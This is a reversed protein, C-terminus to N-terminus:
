GSTGVTVRRWFRSLIPSPQPRGIGANEKDAARSAALASSPARVTRRSPRRARSARPETTDPRAAPPRHSLRAPSRLATPPARDTGKRRDTGVVLISCVARIPTTRRSKAPEIAARLPADHDRRAARVPPQRDGSTMESRVSEIMTRGLRDELPGRVDPSSLQSAREVVIAPSRSPTSSLAQPDLTRDPFAPRFAARCRRLVSV